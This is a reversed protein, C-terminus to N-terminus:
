SGSTLVCKRRQRRCNWTYGTVPMPVHCFHCVSHRIACRTGSATHATECDEVPAIAQEGLSFLVNSTLIETSILCCVSRFYVLRENVRVDSYEPKSSKQSLSIIQIPIRPNNPPRAKPPISRGTQWRNLYIDGKVCNTVLKTRRRRLAYSGHSCPADASNM